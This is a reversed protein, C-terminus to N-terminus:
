ANTLTIRIGAAQAEEETYVSNVFENADIAKYDILKDGDPDFVSGDPDDFMAAAQEKSEAEVLYRCIHYETRTTEIIFKRKKKM